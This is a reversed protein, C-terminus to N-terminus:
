DVALESMALETQYTSSGIHPLTVVNPMSLLPNDKEIPETEFVDLGAGRIKGAKLVEVLDKEISTQRRSMNICIASDMRQSFERTTIPGTTEATLQTMVVVSDAKKMVEDNSDYTAHLNNEAEPESSRSNHILNMDFGFYARKAIAQGINGMGIIGITKD